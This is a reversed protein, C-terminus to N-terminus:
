STPSQPEPEPRPGLDHKTTEDTIASDLHAWSLVFAHTLNAGRLDARHLDAGFLFAGHLNADSLDACELHIGSLSVHALSTRRLNLPQEEGHGYWCDRRRLVTLIAQIDAPPQSRESAETSAEAPSQEPVPANTRIYATLIEMIPWYDRESDRAIRELAYIGGLRIELKDSGLQDVARTFRETIQGEETLELTRQQGRQTEELTQQNLRLSRWTFVLGILLAAGGVVQALTQLVDKRDGPTKPAVYWRIGLWLLAALAVALLTIGVIIAVRRRSSSDASNTVETDASGPNSAPPPAGSTM